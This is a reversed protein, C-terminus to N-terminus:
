HKTENIKDLKDNCSLELVKKKAFHKQSMAKDNDPFHSCLDLLIRRCKNLTIIQLLAKNLHTNIHPTFDEQENVQAAKIFAKSVLSKQASNAM